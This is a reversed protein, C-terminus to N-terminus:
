RLVGQARLAVPNLQVIATLKFNHMEFVTKPIKILIKQLNLFFDVERKTAM